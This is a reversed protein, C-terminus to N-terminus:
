RLIRWGFELRMGSPVTPDEGEMFRRCRGHRLDKTRSEADSHELLVLVLVAWAALSVMALAPLAIMLSKM